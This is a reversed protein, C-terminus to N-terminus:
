DAGASPVVAPRRLDGVLADLRFKAILSSRLACVDNDQGHLVPAEVRVICRSRSNRVSPADATCRNRAYGFLLLALAGCRSTQEDDEFQLILQRSRISAGDISGVERILDSARHQSRDGANPHDRALVQQHQQLACSLVDRIALSFALDLRTSSQTRVGNHAAFDETYSRIELEIKAKVLGM